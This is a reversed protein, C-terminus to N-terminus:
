GWSLEHAAQNRPTIIKRSVDVSWEATQSGEPETFCFRVIVEHTEGAPKEAQWGVVTVGQERSRRYYVTTYLFQQVTFNEKRSKSERVLRIAKETESARREKVIVAGDVVIICVCLLLFVLKPWNNLIKQM